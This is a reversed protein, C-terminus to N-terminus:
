FINQNMEKIRYYLVFLSYFGLIQIVYVIKLIYNFEKELGKSFILFINLDKNFKVSVYLLKILKYVFM